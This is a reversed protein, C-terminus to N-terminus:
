FPPPEHDILKGHLEDGNLALWLQPPNPTGDDGGCGAILAVVTSMMLTALKKM